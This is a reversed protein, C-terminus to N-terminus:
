EAKRVFLVPCDAQIRVSDSVSSGLLRDIDVLNRAVSPRRDPSGMVILDTNFEDALDCIEKGPKGTGTFCQFAFGERKVLKISQALIEDTMADAESLKARVSFNKSVHVLQIEADDVGRLIRTALVLAEQSSATPDVAVMVRKIRKIFLDDKVLLMPKSSLQFVYQSVSNEFISQLRKLGRSGMIILDSGLEDAVQCVTTKPDGEKLLTNVGVITRESLHLAEVTKALIKAGKERSAEMEQTNSKEPVVHLVTVSARQFFPMDLLKGLMQEAQGSDASALLINQLM